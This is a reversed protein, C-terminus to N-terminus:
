DWLHEPDLKAMPVACEMVLQGALAPPIVDKGMEMAQQIAFGFVVVRERLVPVQTEIQPLIVPWIDRVYTIPLDSPQHDGSLRPHGFEPGGLTTAVHGAIEPFDPFDKSGLHDIMGAVMAWLSMKSSFLLENIPDGLYYHTGDEMEVDLIGLVRLNHGSESAQKLTSDVCCFGALSGLLALLSEIHVGRETQMGDLLRRLLEAGTVKLHIMPDDTRRVSQLVSNVTASKRRANDETSNKGRGFLRKFMM